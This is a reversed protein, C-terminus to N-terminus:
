KIEFGSDLVADKIQELTAPSNFSVKLTKNELSIQMDEVGEVEGVFRKIKEICHNCSMGVIEITETM